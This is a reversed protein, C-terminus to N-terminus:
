HTFHGNGTKAVGGQSRSEGTSDESPVLGLYAGITVPSLRSWDGIEVTLGFGTL